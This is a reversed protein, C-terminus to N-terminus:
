LEKNVFKNILEKDFDKDQREPHWQLGMVQDVNHIIAETFGDKTWAIVKLPDPVDKKLIGQNHFSNTEQNNLVDIESILKHGNSVHNEIKNLLKGGFYVILLQFGKCIGLVPIKNKMGYELMQYEIEDREPYVDNMEEDSNYLDPDVNNGGSLVILDFNDKLYDSLNNTNNPVLNCLYGFEEFFKIYEYELVSSKSGHKPDTITKTSIILKKM